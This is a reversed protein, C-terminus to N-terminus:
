SPVSVDRSSLSPSGVPDEIAFVRLTSGGAAQVFYAAGGDTQNDGYHQAAQVSAGNSARTTWFDVPNGAVMDAKDFARFGAGGFGSVNLGFLNATVYVGQSDFGLGPYDWWFQDGGIDTVADTRYKYWVGNPDADDSMAITVWASNSYVELALIVFRQSEHDYFCKPDFTFSGAGLPEFFGPSGQSGLIQQFQLAGSRSYFALSQNVTVVVHDPGVALTPDPPIWGSRDIGSFEFVSTPDVVPAGLMGGLPFDRLALEPNQPAEEPRTHIPLHVKVRRSEDNEIVAPAIQPDFARTDIVQPAVTRKVFVGPETLDILERGAPAPNPDELLGDIEPLAAIPTVVGVGPGSSTQHQSCGVLGGAIGVLAVGLANRVSKSNM